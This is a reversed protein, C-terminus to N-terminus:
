LTVIIDLHIIDDNCTHRSSDCQRYLSTSTFLIFYLFNVVISLLLLYVLYKSTFHSVNFWHIIAIAVLHCCTSIVDQWILFVQFSTCTISLISSMTTYTHLCLEMHRCASVKIQLCVCTLIYTCTICTPIYIYSYTVSLHEPLRM